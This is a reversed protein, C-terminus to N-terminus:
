FLSVFLTAMLTTGVIHVIIASPGCGHLIKNNVGLGLLSAFGRFRGCRLNPTIYLVWVFDGVHLVVPYRLM